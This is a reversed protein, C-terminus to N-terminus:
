RESGWARVARVVLSRSCAAPHYASILFSYPFYGRFANWLPPRRAAGKSQWSPRPRPVYDRHLFRVLGTFRDRLAGAFAIPMFLAPNSDSLVNGFSDYDLVKVVRGEQPGDMAAVAKLSGVQDYGLLYSTSTSPNRSLMVQCPLTLHIGERYLGPNFDTLVNGFSDFDVLKVV